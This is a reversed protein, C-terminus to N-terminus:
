DKKPEDPLAPPALYSPAEQLAQLQAIGTVVEKFPREMLYAILRDRLDEPLLLTKM